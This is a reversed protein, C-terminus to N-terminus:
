RLWRLLPLTLWGYASHVAFAIALATGTAYAPEIAEYQAGLQIAVVTGVGGLILAFAAFKSLGRAFRGMLLGIFGCLVVVGGMGVRLHKPPYAAGYARWELFAALWLAFTGLVVLLWASRTFGSSRFRAWGAGAALALACASATSVTLWGLVTSGVATQTKRVAISAEAKEARTAQTAGPVGFMGAAAGLDVEVPTKMMLTMYLFPDVRWWIGYYLAAAVLLHVVGLARWSRAGEARTHPTVRVTGRRGRLTSDFVVKVEITSPSSM